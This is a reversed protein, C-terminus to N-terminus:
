TYAFLPTYHLPLVTSKPEAIVPELGTAGVFKTAMILIFIRTSNSHHIAKSM